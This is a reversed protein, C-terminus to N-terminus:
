ISHAPQLQMKIVGAAIVTASPGFEMVKFVHRAESTAANFLWFHMKLELQLLSIYKSNQMRVVHTILFDAAPEISFTYIIPNLNDFICLWCPFASYATQLALGLEM